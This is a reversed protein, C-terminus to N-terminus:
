DFAIRAEGVLAKIKNDKEVWIDCVLYRKKDNGSKDRVRGKCTIMENANVLNIFKASLCGGQIWGMPNPLWATIMESVFHLMYVGGFIKTTHITDIGLYEAKKKSKDPDAELKIDGFIKPLNTKTIAKIDLPPINDGIKLQDFFENLNMLTSGEEDTKM